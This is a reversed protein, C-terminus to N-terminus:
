PQGQQKEQGPWALPLSDIQFDYIAMRRAEEPM